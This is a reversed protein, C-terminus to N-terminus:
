DFRTWYSYKLIVQIDQVGAFSTNPDDWIKLIFNGDLPRGQLETRMYQDLLQEDTSSIPNTIYREAALGRAHQIHGTFLKTEYDAGEYNRVMYPGAHDLSYTINGSSYCTSPLLANACNKVGTGVVNVGVTSIRYNFNGQSFGALKFQQGALLRAQSISFPVEWYCQQIALSPPCTSVNGDPCLPVCKKVWKSRFVDGTTDQCAELRRVRTDSTSTFPKPEPPDSTVSISDASIDEVMAGAVLTPGFDSTDQRNLTFDVDVTNGSSPNVDIVYWFRYWSAGSRISSTNGTPQPAAGSRYQVGTGDPTEYWLKAQPDVGDQSELGTAYWSVRYRGANLKVRQAWKANPQYDYGYQMGVPCQGNSGPLDCGYALRFTKPAGVERSFNPYPIDDTVVPAICNEPPIVKGSTDTRSACGSPRWGGLLDASNTQVSIDTTNFLLNDVQVDCPARVGTVDDRLSVVSTDSGEHFNHDLRYSEVVRELKSVYDGMFSDAFSAPSDPHSAQVANWDIGSRECVTGAWRQPAEVLPMDDTLEDMNVALRQEIARRALFTARKAVDFAYEYRLRATERIAALDSSVTKSGANEFALQRIAEAAARQAKDRQREIEALHGDINELAESIQNGYKQLADGHKYIEQQLQIITQQKDLTVGNQQLDLVQDDIISLAVGGACVATAAVAAGAAHPLDITAANGIAAMCQTMHEIKSAANKLAAIAAGNNAIEFAVKAQEVQSSQLLAACLKLREEFIKPFGGVTFGQFASLM